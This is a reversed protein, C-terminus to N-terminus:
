YGQLFPVGIKYISHTYSGIVGVGGTVNSHIQVPESFFESVSSNAVITKIYLYYSKSISQLDILLETHESIEGDPKDLKRPLKNEFYEYQFFNCRFKLGYDKGNFLDDSFEFYYSYNGENFISGESVSGFVLDESSFYFPSDYYSGDDLYQRQKVVLRYFNEGPPDKFKIEFNLQNNHILGITDMRYNNYQDSIYSIYPSSELKKLTTDVKQIEVSAPIEVTGEVQSFVPNKATIKIIDGSKPIYQAKYNGNETFILKEKLQGNVWLHVDANNVFDFTYNEELFFKSNSVNVMIVSDPTCFSNVVLLPTTEEGDFEVITECSQLVIILVSFIILLIHKNKM